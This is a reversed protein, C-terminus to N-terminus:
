RGALVAGKPLMLVLAVLVAALPVGGVMVEPVATAVSTQGVLRRSLLNGLVTVGVSMGLGRLALTASTTVGLDAAIAPLHQAGGAPGLAVVNQPTVMGLQFPSQTFEFGGLGHDLM